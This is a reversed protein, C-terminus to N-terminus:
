PIIRVNLTRSLHESFPLNRIKSNQIEIAEISKRPFPQTPYDSISGDPRFSIRMSDFKFNLM